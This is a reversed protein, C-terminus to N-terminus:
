AGALHIIGSISLKLGFVLMLVTLVAWSHTGLWGDLRRLLPDVRQGLLLYLLVPGAITVSGIAIFLLYGGIEQATTSSKALESAAAATLILNKPYVAAFFAGAAASKAVGFTDVSSMWGPGGNAGQERRWVRWAFGLLLLGFGLKVLGEFPHAAGGAAFGGLAFIVAGLAALGVLWGTLFALGNPRARSSLLILVLVIIVLPSIAVGLGHTVADLLGSTM